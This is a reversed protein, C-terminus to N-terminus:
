TPSPAASPTARDRAAAELATIAEDAKRAERLTAQKRQLARLIVTNGALLMRMANVRQQVAPHSAAVIEEIGAELAREVQKSFKDAELPLTVMMLDGISDQPELSPTQRVEEAAIAVRWMADEAAAVTAEYSLEGQLRSLAANLQQEAAARLADVREGEVDVRKLEELRSRLAAAEAESMPGFGPRLLPDKRIITLLAAVAERSHAPGTDLLRQLRGERNALVASTVQLYRAEAARPTLADPRPAAAPWRDCVVDFHHGVAAAVDLLCQTAEIGWGEETPVVSLWEVDSISFRGLEDTTKSWRATPPPPAPAGSRVWETRHRKWRLTKSPQDDSTDRRREDRITRAVSQRLDAADDGWDDLLETLARRMQTKATQRGATEKPATEVRSALTGGQVTVVRIPPLSAMSM